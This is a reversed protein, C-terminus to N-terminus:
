YVGYYFKDLWTIVKKQGRAEAEKLQPLGRYWTTKARM